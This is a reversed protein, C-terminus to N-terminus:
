CSEIAITAVLLFLLCVVMPLVWQGIYAAIALIWEMKDLSLSFLFAFSFGVAMLCVFAFVHCTFRFIESYRRDSKM